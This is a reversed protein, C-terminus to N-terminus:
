PAAGEPAGTKERTRRRLWEDIDARRFRLQGGMHLAPLGYRTRLIYLRNFNASRDRKILQLYECAQTPTLLPETPSTSTM